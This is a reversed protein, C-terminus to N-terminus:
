PDGIGIGIRAGAGRGAVERGLPDDGVIARHQALGVDHVDDRRGLAM